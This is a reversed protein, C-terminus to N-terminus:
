ERYLNMLDKRAKTVYWPAEYQWLIGQDRNGNIIISGVEAMILWFNNSGIPFPSTTDASTARLTYSITAAVFKDSPDYLDLSTFFNYFEEEDMYITTFNQFNQPIIAFWTEGVFFPFYTEQTGPVQLIRPLEIRVPIKSYKELYEQRKKKTSFHIRAQTEYNIYDKNPKFTQIGKNLRMKDEYLILNKKSPKASKYYSYGMIWKEFDPDTQAYHYFSFAAKESETYESADFAMAPTSITALMVSFLFIIAAPLSKSKLM